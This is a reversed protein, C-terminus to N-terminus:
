RTDCPEASGTASGLLYLEINRFRQHALHRREAVLRRYLSLDYDYDTRLLWVRQGAAADIEADTTAPVPRPHPGATEPAYIALEFAAWPPFLVIRDSPCAAGAVQRIAQDWPPNPTDALNQVGRLSFALLALAALGALPRWRLALLGGAVLVFFPVQLWVFTGVAHGLIPAAWYVPLCILLPGCALIAFSARWPGLARSAALAHLALALPPVVAILRLGWVYDVGVITLLKDIVVAFSPSFQVFGGARQASHVTEIQVLLQPLWSGWLALVGLQAAIWLTAFARRDRALGRWHVLAVLNAMGFLMLATHHTLLCGAMGVVYLALAAGASRDLRVRSQGLMLLRVLGWLALAGLCALLGYPRATQSWVIQLPSIALLLAAVFGLTRGKVSAGIAYTILVALVGFIASPARVMAESHGLRMWLNLILSYLPPFTDAATHQLTEGLSGSAAYYNYSEDLTFGKAGLGKFRLVTAVAFLLALRPADGAAALRTALAPLKRTDIGPPAVSM